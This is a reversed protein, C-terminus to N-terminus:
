IFLATECKAFNTCLRLYAKSYSRTVIVSKATANFFDHWDNLPQGLIHNRTASALDRLSRPSPKVVKKSEHDVIWGSLVTYRQYGGRPM